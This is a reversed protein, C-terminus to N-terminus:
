DDHENDDDEHHRDHNDNDQHQKDSCKGRLNASKLWPGYDVGTSVYAGTGSATGSPGSANGWWNCTGDVSLTPFLAVLSPVVYIGASAGVNFSNRSIDATFFYANDEVYVAAINISMATLGSIKNGTVRANPTDGELGIAHTWGGNLTNITNNKIKVTTYGTATPLILPSKSGNNVQVGYAGRTSVVNTITNGEIRAGLSPNASTSDGILIGQATPTSKINNIRNAEVKVNDPGYELYVGVANAAYTTSGVTDVINNKIHANDGATKVTVAIGQNPNTLTFGDLKVNAANITVLGTVTSEASSAATRGNVNTGSKAGKITVARSVTVNESYTGAVVKVTACGAVDVAAQITTYDQGSAGVSCTPGGPVALAGGSVLALMAASIAVLGVYLRKKQKSFDVSTVTISSM